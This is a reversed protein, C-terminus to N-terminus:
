YYLINVQNSFPVSADPLADRDWSNSLKTMYDAASKLMNKISQNLVVNDKNERIATIINAQISSEEFVTSPMFTNFATDYVKVAPQHSSDNQIVEAFGTFEDIM